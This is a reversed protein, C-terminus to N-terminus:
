ILWDTQRIVMLQWCSSLYVQKSLGCCNGRTNRQLRFKQLAKVYEKNCEQFHSNRILFWHLTYVIELAVNAVIFRTLLGVQCSMDITHVQFFPRQFTVLAVEGCSPWTFKVHVLFFMFNYCEFAVLTVMYTYRFFCKFYVHLSQIRRMNLAFNAWQNGSLWKPM